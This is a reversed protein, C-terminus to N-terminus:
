RYSTEQFIDKSEQEDKRFVRKTTIAFVESMKIETTSHDFFHKKNVLLLKSPGQIRLTM